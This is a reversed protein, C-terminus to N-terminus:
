FTLDIATKWDIGIMMKDALVDFSSLIRPFSTPASAKIRLGQLAWSNIVDMFVRRLYRPTLIAYRLTQGSSSAHFLAKPTSGQAHEM